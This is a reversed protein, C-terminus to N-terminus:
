ILFDPGDIFETTKGTKQALFVVMQPVSGNFNKVLWEALVKGTYRNEYLWLLFNDCYKRKHLLMMTGELGVDQGITYLGDIVRHFM